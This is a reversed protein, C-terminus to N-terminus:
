AKLRENVKNIYVGRTAYYAPLGQERLKKVEAEAEQITDFEGLIESISGTKDDYLFVTQPENHATAPQSVTNQPTTPQSTIIQSQTTPIIPQESPINTNQFKFLEKPYQPGIQIYQNQPTVTQPNQLTSTYQGTPYQWPSVYQGTRNIYRGFQDYYGTVPATPMPEWGIAKKIISAFPSGPYNDMYNRRFNDALPNNAIKYATEYTKYAANSLTSGIGQLINKGTNLLNTITEKAKQRKLMKEYEKKTLKEKGLKKEWEKPTHKEVM